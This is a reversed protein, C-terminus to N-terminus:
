SVPKAANLKDLAAIVYLLKDNFQLYKLAAPPEPPPPGELIIPHIDPRAAEPPSQRNIRDVAYAIEKNVWESDHAAKSWFLVFLDCKDDIETYLRKEWREGPELSLLDVFFSINAAQLAQARKIVEARDPSAYSLFARHYSRSFEGAPVPPAPEAAAEIPMSFAIRGIPVAQRYVRAQVVVRGPAFDKPVTVSFACSRPRRRWILGQEPDDIALGPAELKIDVRDGEALEVDLTAIARRKASSDADLAALKAADEDKDTRGIFVQVLFTDGPAAGAPAFAMVDAVDKEEVPSPAAVPPIEIRTPAISNATLRNLVHGVALNLGATAMRALGQRVIRPIEFRPKKAAPARPRAPGTRTVSRAAEALEAATLRLAEARPPEAMAPHLASLILKSLAEVDEAFHAESLPFAWSSAFDKLDAPLATVAPQRAGAVLVPIVPRGSTLADRITAATFGAEPEWMKGILVVLVKFPELRAPPLGSEAQIIREDPILKALQDRIREACAGCDTAQYAILVGGAM